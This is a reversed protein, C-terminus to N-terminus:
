YRAACPKFPVATPAIKTGPIAYRTPLYCKPYALDTGSMASCSRRCIGAKARHYMSAECWISMGGYPRGQGPDPLSMRKESGPMAYASRLLYYRVVYDTRSM